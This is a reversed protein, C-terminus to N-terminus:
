AGTGGALDAGIHQSLHYEAVPVGPAADGGMADLAIRM